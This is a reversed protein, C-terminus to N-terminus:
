WSFELSVGARQWRHNQKALKKLHLVNGFLNLLQACGALLYLLCYFFGLMEASAERERFWVKFWNLWNTLSKKKV